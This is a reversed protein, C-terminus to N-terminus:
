AFLWRANPASHRLHGGLGRLRVSADVEGRDLMGAPGRRPASPGPLHLVQVLLEAVAHEHVVQGELKGRLPMTPTIPGLPTPLDVRNLIITPM